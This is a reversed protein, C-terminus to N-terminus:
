FRLTRLPRRRHQLSARVMAAARQPTAAVGVHQIASGARNVRYSVHWAIGLVGSEITYESAAADDDDFGQYTFSM